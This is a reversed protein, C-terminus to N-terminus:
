VLKVSYASAIRNVGATVLDRALKKTKINGSVKIKVKSGLVDQLLELLELTISPANIATSTKVYDVGKSKCIKCLRVIEEQSLLATEFIIKIVKGKLHAAMTTSEIDNEVYNWNGDKVACINIVVDLEDAGDGIARKIEEVKAPTAAYGMPYGIVTAVKVQSDSLLNKATNVYYPPICVAAFSCEMAEKCLNLIDSESCDPKLLTHDIYRAINM